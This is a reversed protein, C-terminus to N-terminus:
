VWGTLQAATTGTARIRLAFLPYTGAPLPATAHTKGDAGVWSLTGGQGLTIARIGTSLEATDSPTIPFSAIAPGVATQGSYHFPNLGM